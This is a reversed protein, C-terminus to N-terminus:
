KVKKQRPKIKYGISIGFSSNKISGDEEQYINVFGHNYRLGVSVGIPSNYEAGIVGFVDTSKLYNKIDQKAEGDAKAKASLMLGLQPGAFFAIGQPMHYKALVPINVYNVAYKISNGGSSFTTGYMSFIVEPQISFSKSVYLDALLGAELGANSSTKIDSGISSLNWTSINTGARVGIETKQSFATATMFMAAIFFIRQKM